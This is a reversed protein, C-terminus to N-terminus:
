VSGEVVAEGVVGGVVSAVVGDVVGDTVTVNPDRFGEEVVTLGLGVLMGESLESAEWTVTNVLTGVTMVTVM